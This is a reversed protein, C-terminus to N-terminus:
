SLARRRRPGKERVGTPRGTNPLERLTLGLLRATNRVANDVAKRHVRDGTQETEESIEAPSRGGVQVQVLWRAHRSLHRFTPVPGLSPRGVRLADRVQRRKASLAKVKAELEEIFHAPVTDNRRDDDIQRQLAKIRLTLQDLSGIQEHFIGRVLTTVAISPVTPLPLPRSPHREWMARLLVAFGQLATSGLMRSTAWESVAPPIIV